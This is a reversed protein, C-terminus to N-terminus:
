HLNLTRMQDELRARLAQFGADENLPVAYLPDRTIEAPPVGPTSTALEELLADAKEHAGSWAYVRAGITGAATAMIADRSRPALELSAQAASIARASQGQFAWGEAELLGLYVRNFPTVKRSAVFQLVNRGERQGRGRDGLLLEVWGRYEAIPMDGVSDLITSWGSSTRMSDVTVKRLCADLDRYRHEYRLLDFTARIGFSDTPCGGSETAFFGHIAHLGAIDGSYAFVVYSRLLQGYHLDLKGALDSIRLADKPRRLWSDDAGALWLVVPNSPDLALMREHTRVVEDGRSMRLLLRAKPLLLMPDTIGAAEARAMTELGQQNQNQGMLFFGNVALVLPNDPALRNADTLDQRIHALHEDSSVANGVFMLIGLRARQAYALAFAPDRRIAQTLLDAIGNYVDMPEDAGLERLALVAKLYLDYAAPDQTPAGGGTSASRLQVSLQSAIDKAVESQLTLASSLTRDYSKAWLHRDTKADILQVTLRVHQGERRVSGEMVHTAGLENAVVALPKPNQRYAMMTTRSIVEIGPLREAVTTLLEEHVGDAFFADQPNPSLNELPLIALRPISPAAPPKTTAAPAAPAATPQGHQRWFWSAVALLLAAAAVAVVPLVSRRKQTAEDLATVSLTPPPAAVHAPAEAVDSAEPADDATAVAAVFRYGRGPITVIFRHDEPTEGLLKRLASIHQNLNNEEVITNPWITKMLTPKDLLEGQRQVFLLLADFARSAIPLPEGTKSLLLRRTADLRFDAFQYIV